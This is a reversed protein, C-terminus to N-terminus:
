PKGIGDLRLASPANPDDSAGVGETRLSELGQRVFEAHPLEANIGPCYEQSMEWSSPDLLNGRFYPWARCVDPRALHVACGDEFFVCFGDERTGLHVKGGRRSTHSSLFDEVALGFHVALREQDKDALM